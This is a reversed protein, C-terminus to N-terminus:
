QENMSISVTKYQTGQLCVRVCLVAQLLNISSHEQLYGQLSILFATSPLPLWQGATLSCDVGARHLKFLEPLSKQLKGFQLLPIPGKYGKLQWTNTSSSIWPFPTSAEALLGNHSRFQWHPVCSHNPLIQYEWCSAILHMPGSSPIQTFM